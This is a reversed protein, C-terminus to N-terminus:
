EQPLKLYGGKEKIFEILQRFIPNQRLLPENGTIFLQCRARTLAVNLKRDIVHGDEVFCTATLFDLQWPCQATFSYIIVDRQSGQYREVTDITIDELAPIGLTETEQRIAAIQNRYPVIVGVTKQPNFDSAHQLYVSHLLRAVIRAESINVKDTVGPQRCPESPIFILAGELGGGMPSAELQHPLPVVDLQGGYFMRNPFEAIDPHMRGQKRLIGVFQHRGAKRETRILREFLSHRCDDLQIAKLLPDDVRSENATQQVVAPLQKHDGILIFRAIANLSLLGVLQPELIQSAEDIVALSFQKISFIHPHSQMMSTTGVVIRTQQLQLRIDSLRPNNGFTEELLHQRYAPDCSSRKGIRVYPLSAKQLMGCIEDVARNTYSMLLLTGGRALEEEVIFHLAMSTKGTGPPGILLYYDRAQLAHLLVEDYDPHWSRSLQLSTDATPSRQGLLLAKRGADAQIFQFLSRIAATTNSDSSAHEIAYTDTPSLHQPENLEVVIRDTHIETINGKHLISHRVDPEQDVNYAYLYIFDGRRFNPSPYQTNPSPHHHNGSVQFGFVMDKREERGLDREVRREGREELCLGMIISGTELKEQLPMNWLDSNSHTIGEQSGLLAVRQEQYVFTLMRCFYAHELPSLRHLPDCVAKLEPLKWQIFFNSKDNRENVTAPTILDIVSQFGHRAIHLDWAVILNRIRIAERFLQQLYNVVILGNKAPYKSYLFRLNVRDFGLNFNHHLIGYYLLLQVYHEEQMMSGHEGPRGIQINFNKGSKQEVLLRFDSTFLDFRGSIGLRECVFSPELIAKDLSFESALTNVADQINQAQTYADAVFADSNFDKCTCFEIAKERFNDRITERVNYDGTSHIVDDLVSGALNGLLMPQSIASPALRHITYILPHRGYSQFTRSIPSIDVLFDPELIVLSPTYILSSHSTILSSHQTTCDILNIQAGKYVIDKVYSLHPAAISVTLTETEETTIGQEPTVTLTDEDISEVIGRICSFDTHPTREFPRNEKPLIQLLSSPIGVSFVASIFLCLARVDYLLDERSLPESYNSHRRMTQIAITNAVSVRHQKCLYGVQAFLNGYAQNSDKIAEHCALVLTEHMQRNLGPTHEDATAIAKAQLFLDDATM